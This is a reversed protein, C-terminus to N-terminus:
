TVREGEKLVLRLPGLLVRPDALPDGDVALLDARKGAEITGVEAALGCVRAARSTAAVIAEMAGLGADALLVLERANAGHPGADAGMAIEVGERRALEVTKLASERLGRAREQMWDPFRGDPDAVADFVCLTPVLVTGRAAMAALVDPVEFGMEGHEITDAGAEVAIRIGAAGEAHAAVPVGLRHAEDALAEVEDRRLQAPNVDEEAVTLAGTVMVKVVDAGARVQERVAKRLEDPGDAEHYMGPFAVAGPCSASIVQGCLVLRPGPFLGADIGERLAFLSRGYAGLDRVTTIGGALLARSAEVLAYPHTPDSPPVPLSSLHVHVDVLGPLLTAGELDVVAAEPPAPGDVSAIRGDEVLVTVRERPPAGTGDIV